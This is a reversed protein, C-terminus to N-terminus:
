LAKGSTLPPEDSVLYLNDVQSPASADVDELIHPFRQALWRFFAPVGM